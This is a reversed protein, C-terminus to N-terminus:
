TPFTKNEIIKNFINEPDQIQSEDGEKIVIIRINPRKM